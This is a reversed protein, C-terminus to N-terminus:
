WSYFEGRWIKFIFSAYIIDDYFYIIYIVNKFNQKIM